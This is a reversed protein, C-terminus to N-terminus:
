QHKPKKIRHKKIRGQLTNVHMGREIWTFLKAEIHYSYINLQNTLAEGPLRKLYIAAECMDLAYERLTVVRSQDATM